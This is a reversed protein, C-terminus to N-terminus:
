FNYMIYKICKNMEIGSHRSNRFLPQLTYTICLHHSPPRANCRPELQMEIESFCLRKASAIPVPLACRDSIGSLICLSWAPTLHNFRGPMSRTLASWYHELALTLMPFSPIWRVFSLLWFSSLLLVQSSNFIVRKNPRRNSNDGSSSPRFSTTPVDLLTEQQENLEDSLVRSSKSFPVSETSAILGQYPRFTLQREIGVPASTWGPTRCLILGTLPGALGVLSTWLPVIQCHPLVPPPTFSPCSNFPLAEESRYWINVKSM